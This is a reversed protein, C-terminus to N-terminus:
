QFLGVNSGPKVRAKEIIYDNVQRPTLKMFCGVRNPTQRAAVQGSRFSDGLSTDVSASQPTGFLTEGVTGCNTGAQVSQQNVMNSAALPKAPLGDPEPQAANAIAACLFLALGLFRM